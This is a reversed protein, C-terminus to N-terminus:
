KVSFHEFYPYKYYKTGNNAWHFLWVKYAKMLELIEGFLFPPEIWNGNECGDEADRASQEANYEYSLCGKAHAIEMTDYSYQHHYTRCDIDLDYASYDLQSLLSYNDDEGGGETSSASIGYAADGSSYYSGRDDSGSMKLLGESIFYITESEDRNNDRASWTASYSYDTIKVKGGERIIKNAYEIIAYAKLYKARMREDDQPSPLGITETFNVMEAAIAARREASRTNKKLAM